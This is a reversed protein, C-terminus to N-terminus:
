VAVVESKTVPVRVRGTLLDHMLGKKTLILKDRKAEECRIRADHAALADVIYGQELVSPKTLRVQKLSTLNVRDRTVGQGRQNIDGRTSPCNLMHMVYAHLALSSKLRFRFCDAKVIAPQGTSPYLCARALPHRDDGLSAILLDGAVVAYRKLKDAHSYSVYAEDTENFYGVEINQLRVVRVEPRNIYHETKLNSGFPGDVASETLQELTCVDWEKPILGLPSDKFQEPNRVHDRLKGDRDLGRTLLDHLLGAKMWKLKNILADTRQIAAGVADLVEAIRRQEPPPAVVLVLSRVDNENIAPYSSGIELRRIQGAVYDSFIQHYLYRPENQNKARIVAFGTSCIFGDKDQWYAFTHAQLAPRVTCLLTDKPRVVRRARSPADAFTQTTVDDWNIVGHEVPSIDIYRFEFSASTGGGLSEPNIDALTNLQEESWGDPLDFPLKTSKAEAQM